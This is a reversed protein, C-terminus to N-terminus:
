RKKCIKVVFPRKHLFVVKIFRSVFSALNYLLMKQESSSGREVIYWQKIRPPDPYCINLIIFLQFIFSHTHSWFINAWRGVCKMWVFSISLLVSIYIAAFRVTVNKNKFAQVQQVPILDSCILTCCFNTCTMVSEPIFVRILGRLRVTRPLWLSARWPHITTLHVSTLSRPYSLSKSRLALLHVDPCTRGPFVELLAYAYDSWLWPASSFNM